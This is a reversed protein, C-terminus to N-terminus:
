EQSFRFGVREATMWPPDLAAIQHFVPCAPDHTGPLYGTSMLLENVIEGGTFTFTQRFLKTWQPKTLPHHADLWGKFSGHQERLVLWRRANEIIAKVKLRNRIIRIDGLLRAEEAEGWTAIEMPDFGAFADYLGVRRKLIIEWSLGAQFIEMCLREFLVRDDSTPFGYEHDHYPGHVPHGIAVACYWSM